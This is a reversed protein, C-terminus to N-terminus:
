KGPRFASAQGVQTLARLLQLTQRVTLTLTDTDGNTTALGEQCKLLLDEVEAETLQWDAPCESLRLITERTQPKLDM